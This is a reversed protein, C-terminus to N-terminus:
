VYKIILMKVTSIVMQKLKAKQDTLDRCVCKKILEIELGRLRVFYIAGAAAERSVREPGLVIVNFGL